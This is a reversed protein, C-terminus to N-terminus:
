ESPNAQWKYMYPLTITFFSIVLLLINMANITDWNTNIWHHIPLAPRTIVLYNNICEAIDGTMSYIQQFIVPLCGALGITFWILWIASQLKQQKKKILFIGLIGCTIIFTVYFVSMFFESKSINGIIVFVITVVGTGIVSAIWPKFRTFRFSLLIFSLGITVYLWVIIQESSMLSNEKIGRTISPVDNMAYLNTTGCMESFNVAIKYDVSFNPDNFCLRAIKSSQLATPIQVQGGIKNYADLVYIISDTKHNLLWRKAIDSYNGKFLKNAPMQNCYFLYCYEMNRINPFQVAEATDPAPYPIEGEYTENCKTRTDVLLTTDEPKNISDCCSAKEFKDVNEPLFCNAMNVIDEIAAEDLTEVLHKKKLDKGIQYSVYVFSLAAFITLVIIAEKVLYSKSVPYFSKFANNRLYQFLWIVLTIFLVLTAFMYVSFEDIISYGFYDDSMFLNFRGKVSLYGMIFYLFNMFALFLLMQPARTNWLLPFRFILNKFKM